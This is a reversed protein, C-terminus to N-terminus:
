KTMDGIVVYRSLFATGVGRGANQHRLDAIQIKPGFFGGCAEFWHVFAQSSGNFDGQGHPERDVEMM